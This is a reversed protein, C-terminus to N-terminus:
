FASVWCSSRQTGASTGGLIPGGPRGTPHCPAVVLGSELGEIEYISNVIFVSKVAAVRAAAKASTPQLLLLAWLWSAAGPAVLPSHQPAQLPSAAGPATELSAPQAELQESAAGPATELSAPQAELQESEAAAGPATELSGAEQPDLQESLISFSPPPQGM